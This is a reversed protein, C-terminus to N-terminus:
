IDLKEVLKKIDEFTTGVSDNYDSIGFKNPHSEIEYKLKYFATEYPSEKEWFYKKDRYCRILAGILCFRVADKDSPSITGGNKNQALHYKAWKSPDSYLEKIKM